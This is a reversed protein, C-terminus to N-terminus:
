MNTITYMIITNCWTATDISWPIDHEMKFNEMTGPNEIRLNAKFQTQRFIGPLSKITRKSSHPYLFNSNTTSDSKISKKKESQPHDQLQILYQQFWVRIYKELLQYAKDPHCTLAYLSYIGFKKHLLSNCYWWGLQIKNSYFKTNDLSVTM